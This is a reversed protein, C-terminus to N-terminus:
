CLGRASCSTQQCLRVAGIQLHDIDTHANSEPTLERNLLAVLDICYKTLLLAVFLLTQFKCPDILIATAKSDNLAVNRLNILTINGEIVLHM